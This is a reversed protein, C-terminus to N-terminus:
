IRPINEAGLRANSPSANPPREANTYDHCLTFKMTFMTFCENHVNHFTVKCSNCQRSILFTRKRKKNMRFQRSLVCVTNVVSFISYLIEGKKNGYCVNKCLM